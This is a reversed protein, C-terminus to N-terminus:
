NLFKLLRRSFKSRMAKEALLRKRLKGNFEIHVFGPHGHQRLTKGSVNKTAGLEQVEFPYLRVPKAFQVKMSAVLTRLFFNPNGTGCSIIAGAAKGVESKRKAAGFGHLQVLYSSKKKKAFARAFAVFYNALHAQTDAPGKYHGLAYRPVSNWCAGGFDGETVLLSVIKGTGRDFFSHPAQLFVKSASKLFLFIGRGRQCGPQEFVLYGSKNALEISQVDMEISAWAKKLMSLEEWGM